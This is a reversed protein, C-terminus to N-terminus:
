YSSSVCLGRQADYHYGQPCDDGGDGILFGIKITLGQLNRYDAVIRTNGGSPDEGNDYHGKEICFRYTVQLFAWESFYFALGAKPWWETNYEGTGNVSAMIDWDIGITPMISFNDSMLLPYKFAGGFLLRPTIDEIFIEDSAGNGGIHPRDDTFFGNQSAFYFEVGLEFYSTISIGACIGFKYPNLAIENSNNERIIFNENVDDWERWSWSADAQAPMYMASLGFYFFNDDIRNMSWDNWVFEGDAIAIGSAFLTSLFFMIFRKM